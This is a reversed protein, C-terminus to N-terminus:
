RKLLDILEKREEKSLPKSKAMNPIEVIQEVSYSNLLETKASECERYTMDYADKINEVWSDNELSQLFKNDTTRKIYKVMKKNKKFQAM